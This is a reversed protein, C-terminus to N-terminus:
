SYHAIGSQGSKTSKVRPLMIAMVKFNVKFGGMSEWQVLTPQMGIVEDVVDKTLQVMVVSGATVDSSPLIFELGAIEMLRQMITKDSAAKYDDAMRNYAAIPVFLGYPGYMNNGDASLASIMAIVDTVMNEGTAASDWNATVSGTLRNAETLLGPISSGLVALSSGAFLISEIKESVVRASQEAQMTDITQGRTRSAELHRINLEFDKHIIPLPMTKLAFDIRDREGETIGSMSVDAETMEGAQEWELQTTGLANGISYTLGRGVLAGVGVLRKQAIDVVAEDFQKWEDKRLIDNTRLAAPNFDNALLAQAVSGTGSFGTRTKQITDIQVGSAARIM